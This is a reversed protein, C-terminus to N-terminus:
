SLELQRHHELVAYNRSRFYAALKDVVYVSRHVGGTCGIAVTLTTLTGKQFLLISRELFSIISSIMEGVEPFQEFFEQVAKDKGVLHALSPSYFPNPLCRIDFIYNSDLPTGFKFGFSEFILQFAKGNNGVWAQIWKILHSTHMYSTDLILATERVPNLLIREKAIAEQLSPFSEQLPHTRRTESYRKILVEEKAELFLISLRDETAKIQHLLQSLDTWLGKSRADISVALNDTNGQRRHWAILHELLELPLNDVCYFGLDELANLTISKGSGSIGTILVLNM